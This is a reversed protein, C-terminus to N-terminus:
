FFWIGQLTRKRKGILKDRKLKLKQYKVLLIDIEQSISITKVHRLGFLDGYIYMAQQKYKIDYLILTMKLSIFLM